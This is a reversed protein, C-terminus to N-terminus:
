RQNRPCTAPRGPGRFEVRRGFRAAVEQAFRPSGSLQGRRVADRLVRVIEPNATCDVFERYRERRRVPSEGMARYCPDEYLMEDRRLGVKGAYSSWPYDEPRACMGARVPNLEIYRSCELLYEETQVVSSRYRGEWVTGTRVQTRNIHRTHAAALPKLVRALGDSTTPMLLLHVHNTMLCYAFLQVSHERNLRALKHLYFLFDDETAFVPRRNHGRHVVHHAFGPIVLRATRPM